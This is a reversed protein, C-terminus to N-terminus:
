GLLPSDYSSQTIITADMVEIEEEDDDDLIEGAPASTMRPNTTISERIKQFDFPGFPSKGRSATTSRLSLRAEEEKFKKELWQMGGLMEEKLEPIIRTLFVMLKIIDKIKNEQRNYSETELELSRKLNKWSGRFDMQNKQVLAMNYYLRPIDIDAGKQNAKSTTLIKLATRYFKLALKNNGKEKMILGLHNYCKAALPQGEQQKSPNKLARALLIFSKLAEEKNDFKWYLAALDYVAKDHELHQQGLFKRTFNLRKSYIKQAGKYNEQKEYISGMNRQIDLITAIHKKKNKKVIRLAKKEYSLAEDYNELGQYSSALGRFKQLLTKSCLKNLNVEIELAKHYFNVANVFSKRKYCEDGTEQYQQALVLDKEEFRNKSCKCGM